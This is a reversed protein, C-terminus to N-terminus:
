RRALLRGFLRHECDPDSCSDCHWPVRGETLHPAATTHAGLPALARLAQALRQETSGHFVRYHLGAAQLRQRLLADARARWQPGDRQAGDAQWPLDCGMLWTQACCRQWDLAWSWLSNDGFYLESYTATVLPTTDALVWHTGPQLCASHISAAQAHAMDAQEHAQPPRGHTNVWDRLVEDVVQVTWGQQRLTNAVAHTLTTKGSCEGGLLAIVPVAILPDGETSRAAASM